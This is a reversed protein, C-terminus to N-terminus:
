SNYFSYIKQIRDFFISTSEFIGTIPPRNIDKTIDSYGFEKQVSIFPFIVMKDITMSSFKGDATNHIDFHESKIAPFFDRYLVTFQTCIFHEIWFRNKAVPMAYTCGGVGGLLIDAGKEYAEEINEFLFEKTYHQTFKHDDECIIFVDQDKNFAIDVVKLISNWLGVAGVEHKCAEVITLEFEDRDKFENKIHKLRDVREPLNIVYTPISSVDTM